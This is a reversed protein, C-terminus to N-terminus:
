KGIGRYTIGIGRLESKDFINRGDVVISGKMRASLEEPTLKRYAEHKTVFIVADADRLAEDINRTMYIGEFGDVYPDHVIIEAGSDKLREIIPLAPTNRADDSDEIFAFGMIAVKSGGLSSGSEQFAEKTLEFLHHPMMDNIDRALSILSGEPDKEAGYLLLWSDKPLCHGGVGSGPEHMHRDPSTNVLEKTEFVDIGLKECILALENAFAIEVDRYANETTKVVEATLADTLLLKGRSIQEYYSKAVEASKPDIGGIIRDCNILNHLLKGVKLREPCHALYFDAGAKLGSREELTSRVIRSTTGPAITSEICVLTGGSLNEGISSLAAKLSEFGPIKTREDIPTDVSVFIADADRCKSFDDTARFGHDEYAEEFLEKLGPEKGVIPCIGENIMKIKSESIDIGVVEFGEKSFSCAVPIGVYGLGVVAIKKM